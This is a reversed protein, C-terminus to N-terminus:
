EKRWVLIEPVGQRQADAVAALKAKKITKGEGYGWSGDELQLTVNSRNQDRLPIFTIIKVRQRVERM